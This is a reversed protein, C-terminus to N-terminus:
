SICHDSPTSLFYQMRNLKSKFDGVNTAFHCLVYERCEQATTPSAQGTINLCYSPLLDNICMNTDICEKVLFPQDYCVPPELKKTQYEIIKQLVNSFLNKVYQTNNFLLVGSTFTLTKDLSEFEEDTFFWCHVFRSKISQESISYLQNKLELEFLKKLSNIVCVDCDLYLIKDYESINDYSFIRYRSATANFINYIDMCWIDYKINSQKMMSEIVPKFENSTIVLFTTNELLNNKSKCISYLLLSFIQIYESQCFVCSYILNKM